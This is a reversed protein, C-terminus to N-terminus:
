AIMDQMVTIACILVTHGQRAQLIMSSHQEPDAPLHLRLARGRAQAYCKTHGVLSRGDAAREVVLVRQRTGVLHAHAGGLGDVLAAM